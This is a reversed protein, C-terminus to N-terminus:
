APGCCRAAVVALVPLVVPGGAAYGGLLGLAVVIVVMGTGLSRRVLPPSLRLARWPVRGAPVLVRLVFGVTVVCTVAAGGRAAAGAAASHDLTATVLGAAAVLAAAGPLWWRPAVVVRRIPWVLWILDPEAPRDHAIEALTRMSRRVVGRDADLLALLRRGRTGTPDIALAQRTAEGAAEPNGALREIEAL